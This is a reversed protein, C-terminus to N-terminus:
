ESWPIVRPFSEDNTFYEILPSHEEPHTICASDWVCGAWLHHDVRRLNNDGGDFPRHSTLKIAIVCTSSKRFRTCYDSSGNKPRSRYTGSLPFQKDDKDAAIIEAQTLPFVEHDDLPAVSVCPNWNAAKMTKAAEV